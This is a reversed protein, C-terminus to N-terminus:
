INVLLAIKIYLQFNTRRIFSYCAKQLVVVVPSLCPEDYNSGESTPYLMM